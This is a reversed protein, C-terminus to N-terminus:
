KLVDYQLVKKWQSWSFFSYSFTSILLTTYTLRCILPITGLHTYTSINASLLSHNSLICLSSDSLGSHFDAHLDRLFVLFLVVTHDPLIVQVNMNIAASNVIGLNQFCGLHGDVSSHIFFIHYTYVISSYEAMFFFSNIDNAPFNISSSIMM